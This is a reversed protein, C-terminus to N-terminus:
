AKAAFRPRFCNTLEGTERDLHRDIGGVDHMLNFDDAALLQDFDMPCGNAHTAILDMQIDIADRDIKADLYLNRARRAIKRATLLDAASAKFSVEHTKTATANM